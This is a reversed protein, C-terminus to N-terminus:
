SEDGVGRFEPEPDHEPRALQGCEPCRGSVNGTLDYGCHQCRGRPIRRDRWWLFATPIAVVVALCWLPIFVSTFWPGHRFRPMWRMTVSRSHGSHFGSAPRVDDLSDETYLIRMEGSHLQVSLVNGWRCVHNYAVPCCLSVPWALALMACTATGAWELM